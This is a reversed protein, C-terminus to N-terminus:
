RRNAAVWDNIDGIYNEIRRLGGGSVRHALFPLKVEEGSVIDVVPYGIPYKAVEHMQDYYRAGIVDERRYRMTRVGRCVLMADQGLVARKRWTIVLVYLSGVMIAIGIVMSITRDQQSQMTPASETLIGIAIVLSFAWVAILLWRWPNSLVKTDQRM